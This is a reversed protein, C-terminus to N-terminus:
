AFGPHSGAVPNPDTLKSDRFLTNKFIPKASAGVEGVNDGRRRACDDDRVGVLNGEFRNASIFVEGGGVVDDLPVPM